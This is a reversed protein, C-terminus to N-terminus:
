QVYKKIYYFPIKNKKIKNSKPQYLGLAYLVHNLYGEQRANKLKSYLRQLFFGLFTFIIVNDIMRGTLIFSAIILGEDAEWWLFQPQADLYKPIYHYKQENM